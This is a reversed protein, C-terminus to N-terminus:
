KSSIPPVAKLYAAIALRDEESLKAMNEVVSVMSGGASDYDPTFGSELYYAIDNESWGGIGDEHPTINPIRGKGDPSPGGALWQDTKMGGLLNRPTHCEGCHGLAEVLYRGRLLQTESGSVTQQWKDDMFLLKWAGVPRRWQFPLALEHPENERSVTPLTQIYAFLDSIDKDSLKNYSAYPFAPFYHKGNPSQGLVMADHFTPFDWEGIGTDKDPSINPVVFTGFPTALRHGGGLKLKEDGSANDAAHCSACGSAWFVTEGNELDIPDPRELYSAATKGGPVPATIFWFIGFSFLAALIGFLLLRKM